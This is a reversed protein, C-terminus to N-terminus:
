KTRYSGKVTDGMILPSVLSANRQAVFTELVIYKAGLMNRKLGRFVGGKIEKSVQLDVSM